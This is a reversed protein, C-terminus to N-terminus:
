RRNGPIPANWNPCVASICSLLYEIVEKAARPDSYYYPDGDEDLNILMPIAGWLGEEDRVPHLGGDSIFFVGKPTVLLHKTENELQLDLWDIHFVSIETVDTSVNKVNMQYVDNDFNVTADM